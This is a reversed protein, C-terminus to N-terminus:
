VSTALSADEDQEIVTDECDLLLVAPVDEIGNREAIRAGRESQIDVIEIIGAAIAEAHIDYEENCPICNGQGLLVLSPKCAQDIPWNQILAELCLLAEKDNEILLCAQVPDPPDQVQRDSM